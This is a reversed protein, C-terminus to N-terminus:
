IRQAKSVSWGSAKDCFGSALSQRRSRKQVSGNSSLFASFRFFPSRAGSVQSHISPVSSSVAQSPEPCVASRSLWAALTRQSWPFGPVPFDVMAMNRASASDVANESVVPFVSAYKKQSEPKSLRFVAM